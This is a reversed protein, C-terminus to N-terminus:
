YFLQCGLSRCRDDINAAALGGQYVVKKRPPVLVNCHEVDRFSGKLCVTFTKSRQSVTYMPDNGVDGPSLQLGTGVIKPMITGNKVEEGVGLAPLCVNSLDNSRYPAAPVDDDTGESGLSGRFAAPKFHNSVVGVGQM